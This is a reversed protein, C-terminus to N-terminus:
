MTANASAASANHAAPARAASVMWQVMVPGRETVNSQDLKDRVEWKLEKPIVIKTWLGPHQTLWDDMALDARSLVSFYAFQNVIRDDLSPPEFFLAFPKKALGDFAKLSGAARALMETTFIDAEEDGLIKRLKDPLIAHAKRYDVRWIVGDQDFFVAKIQSM